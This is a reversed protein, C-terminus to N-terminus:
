KGAIHVVIDYSRPKHWPLDLCPSKVGARNEPCHPLGRRCYVDGFHVRARARRSPSADERTMTGRFVNWELLFELVSHCRRRFPVLCTFRGTRRVELHTGKHRSSVGYTASAEQVYCRSTQHRDPWESVKGRHCDVSIILDCASEHKKINM